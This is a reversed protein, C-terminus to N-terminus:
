KQRTFLKMNGESSTLDYKEDNSGGAALVPAATGAIVLVATLALLARKM